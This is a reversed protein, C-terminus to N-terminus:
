GVHSEGGELSHEDIKENLNIRLRDYQDCDVPEPFADAAAILRAYLDAAGPNDSIGLAIDRYLQEQEATAENRAECSNVALGALTELDARVIRETMSQTRVLTVILVFAIVILLAGLVFLVYLRRLTKENQKQTSEWFEDHDQKTWSESRVSEAIHVAEDARLKASQFESRAATVAMDVETDFSDRRSRDTV